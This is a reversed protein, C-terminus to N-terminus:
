QRLEFEWCDAAVHRLEAPGHLRQGHLQIACCTASLAGEYVGAEWRKVAGRGGSIPGEYDLYVLRHAALATAAIRVGVRPPEALRWARLVAGDELLLDWHLEPHDHELIAFRPMVVVEGHLM